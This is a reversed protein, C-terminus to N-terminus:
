WRFVSSIVKVRDQCSGLPVNEIKLNCKSKDLLPIQLCVISYEVCFGPDISDTSVKSILNEEETEVPLLNIYALRLKHGRAIKPFLYQEFLFSRQRDVFVGHHDIPWRM